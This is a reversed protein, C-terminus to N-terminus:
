RHETSFLKSYFDVVLRCMEIPDSTDCGHSNRLSYMKKGEVSKHELNFFFLLLVM